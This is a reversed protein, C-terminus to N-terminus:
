STCSLVHIMYSLLASKM